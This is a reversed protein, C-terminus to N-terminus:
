THIVSLILNQQQIILAFLTEVYQIQGFVNRETQQRLQTALPLM